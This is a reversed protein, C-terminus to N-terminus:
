KQELFLSIYAVSITEVHQTQLMLGHEDTMPRDIM